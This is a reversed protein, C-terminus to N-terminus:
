SIVNTVLSNTGLGVTILIAIIVLLEACVRWVMEVSRCCHYFRYHIGVVIVVVDV